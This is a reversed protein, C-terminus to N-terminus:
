LARIRELVDAATHGDFEPAKELTEAFSCRDWEKIPLHYTIQEGPNKFLGLVFWEGGFAPEGDSHNKSRWVPINEVSGRDIAAQNMLSITGCLLMYLNVRHDYLEDFTHFGDSVQMADNGEVFIDKTLDVENYDYQFRDAGKITVTKM